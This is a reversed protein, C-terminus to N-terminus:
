GNGVASSLAAVEQSEERENVSELRYYIHLVLTADYLMVTGLFDWGEDPVEAFGTGVTKFMLRQQSYWTVPVEAWAVVDGQQVGVSIPKTGEAVVYECFTPQIAYKFVQRM